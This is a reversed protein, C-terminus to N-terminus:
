KWNGGYRITEGFGKKAIVYGYPMEPQWKVSLYYDEIRMVMVHSKDYITLKQTPSPIDLRERGLPVGDIYGMPISGLMVAITEVCERGEKGSKEADMLILRKNISTRFKNQFDTMFYKFDEWSHIYYDLSEIWQGDIIGEPFDKNQFALLGNIVIIGSDRGLRETLGDRLKQLYYIEGEKYAIQEDKDKVYPIGDRDMDALNTCGYQCPWDNLGNSVSDIFLGAYDTGFSTMFMTNLLHNVVSDIADHHLLNLFYTNYVSGELPDGKVTRVIHEPYVIDFWDRWYVGVPAKSWDKPVAGINTYFLPIHQIDNTRLSDVFGNFISYQPAIANITNVSLKFAKMHEMPIPNSNNFWEGGHFTGYWTNQANANLPIALLLLTLIIGFLKLKM